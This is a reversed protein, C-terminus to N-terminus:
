DKDKATVRAVTYIRKSQGEYYVRVVLEALLGMMVMMVGLLFLFVGLLLLPNRHAKSVPDGLKDLLVMAGSLMGLFCCLLGAPGFFHLPRTSYCGLLRLLMLDLLVRVTRSLGYKSHGSSRARHNVEIEAVQAGMWHGFVPIFRHMEGFLSINELVERRYAKMTCGIDHLDLGTVMSVVRNAIASPIRRTLWGDKRHRRWGCVIDYGEDLRELLAPIDRPDNQLDGDMTILIGGRADDIGAQIAPTQGFNRRLHIVRVREDRQVLADLRDGSTDTSGDNVFLIEGEYELEDLVLGLEDYLPGVAAEENYVPVIVSLTPENTPQQIVAGPYWRICSAGSRPVPVGASPETHPHPRCPRNDDSRIREDM